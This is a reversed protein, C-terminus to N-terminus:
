GRYPQFKSNKCIWSPSLWWKSYGKFRWIEAVMQGTVM